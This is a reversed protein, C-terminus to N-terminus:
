DPANKKLSHDLFSNCTTQLCLCSTDRKEHMVERSSRDIIDDMVADSMKRLLHTVGLSCPCALTPMCQCAQLCELFCLPSGKRNILNKKETREYHLSRFGRISLRWLSRRSNKSRSKHNRETGPTLHATVPFSDLIEESPMQNPHLSCLHVRETILQRAEVHWEVNRNRITFIENQRYGVVSAAFVSNHLM